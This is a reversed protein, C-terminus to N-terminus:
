KLTLKHEGLRKIQFFSLNSESSLILTYNKKFDFTQHGFEKQKLMQNMYEFIYLRIHSFILASEPEIYLYTLKFKHDEQSIHKFSPSTSWSSWKQSIIGLSLFWIYVRVHDRVIRIYKMHFSELASKQSLFRFCFLTFLVEKWPKAKQLFLEKQM